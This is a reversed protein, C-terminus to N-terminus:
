SSSYFERVCKSINEFDQLAKRYWSSKDLEAAKELYKKAADKDGEYLALKAASAFRNSSVIANGTKSFDEGESAVGRSERYQAKLLDPNLLILNRALLKEDARLQLREAVTEFPDSSMKAGCVHSGKLQRQLM